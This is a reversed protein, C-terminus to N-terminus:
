EGKLIAVYDFDNFDVAPTVTVIQGKTDYMEEMSYVKGILIGPPFVGGNGSTVIKMGKKIEAHDDFIQVRYRRTNADYSELIGATTGKKLEVNVSVSVDKTETTLLKVKCYSGYVEVVKGILGKSSIVAMDTEVGHDRGKNLTIMNSWTSPDRAIVDAYVKEFDAHTEFEYLEEMEKILRDKEKNLQKYLQVESLQAQLKDNEERIGNLEQLQTNWDRIVEIPHEIVSYRILAFLNYGSKSVVNGKSLYSFSGFLVLVVIISILIKQVRTFRKVEQQVDHLKM